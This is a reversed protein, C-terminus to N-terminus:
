PALSLLRSPLLNTKTTIGLKKRIRHRYIAVAGKRVNLLRAIEKATRGQRVLSIVELERPTFQYAGLGRLFPSIVENVNTETGGSQKRQYHQNRQQDASTFIQYTFNKDRKALEYRSL